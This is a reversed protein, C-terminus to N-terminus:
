PLAKNLFRAAGWNWDPLKAQVELGEWLPGLHGGLRGRAQIRVDCGSVTEGALMEPLKYRQPSHKSLREM